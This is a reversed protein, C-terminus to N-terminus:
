QQLCETTNVATSQCRSKLPLCQGEEPKGSPGLGKFVIELLLECRTFKYFSQWGVLRGGGFGYHGNTTDDQRWAGEHHPFTNKHFKVKATM